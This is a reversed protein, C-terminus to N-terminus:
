EHRQVNRLHNKERTPDNATRGVGLRPDWISRKTQRRGKSRDPMSSVSGGSYCDPFLGLM